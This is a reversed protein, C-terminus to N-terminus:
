TGEPLTYHDAALDLGLRLLTATATPNQGVRAAYEQVSTEDCVVAWVVPWIRGGLIDRVQCYDREAAIKSEMFQSPVRAGHTMDQRLGMIGLSYAAVLRRGAAAQRPTLVKRRELADLTPRASARERQSAGFSM